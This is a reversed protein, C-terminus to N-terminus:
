YIKLDVLDGNTDAITQGIGDHRAYTQQTVNDIPNNTKGFTLADILATRKTADTLIIHIGGNFVPQIGVYAM